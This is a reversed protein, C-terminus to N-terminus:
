IKAIDLKLDFELVGVVADVDDSFLDLLSLGFLSLLEFLVLLSALLLV